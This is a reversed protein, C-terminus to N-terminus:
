IINHLHKIGKSVFTRVSNMLAKYKFQQARGNILDEYVVILTVLLETRFGYDPHRRLKQFSYLKNVTGAHTM